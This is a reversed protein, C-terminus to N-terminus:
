FINEANPISSVLIELYNMYKLSLNVKNINLIATLLEFHGGFHKFNSVYAEVSGIEANKTDFEPNELDSIWKNGSSIM